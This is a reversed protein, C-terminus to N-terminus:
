TLIRGRTSLQSSQEKSLDLGKRMFDNGFRKRIITAFRNDPITLKRLQYDIVGEYGANKREMFFDKMDSLLALAEDKIGPANYLAATYMKKIAAKQAYKTFDFDDLSLLYIMLMHLFAIDKEFIGADSLPNHDIMRLEIHNVGNESLNDISNAGRPKLRVPYYLERETIIDRTDIYSKISDIYHKIDSYDLIPIFDNHYGIESCRASAYRELHYDVNETFFSRDFVPSAATLYVIFWSYAVTKKALELYLKDKFVRFDTEDSKTFLDEVYKRGFSFNYHIGSYLMKRKGYRDALYRRYDERYALKDTFHAIKIEDDNEFYPPNSFLWLYEGRKNLEKLVYRHIRKIENYAAKASRVPNTIIEVQNECFDRDINPNGLFPHDTQAFRGNEDVRLSEKEIGIECDFLYNSKIKM